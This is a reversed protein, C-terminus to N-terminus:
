GVQHCKSLMPIILDDTLKISGIVVLSVRGTGNVNNMPGSLALVVLHIEDSERM